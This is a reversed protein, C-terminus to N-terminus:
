NEFGDYVLVGAAFIRAKASENIRENCRLGKQLLNGIRTTADGTSAKRLGLEVDVLCRECTGPSPGLATFQVVCSVSKHSRIIGNKESPGAKRAVANM